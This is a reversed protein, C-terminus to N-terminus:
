AFLELTAPTVSEFFVRNKLDHLPSFLPWLKEAEKPFAGL